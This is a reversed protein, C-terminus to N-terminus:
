AELRVLTRSLFVNLWGRTTFAHASTEMYPPHLGGINKCIGTPQVWGVPGPLIREGSPSTVSSSEVSTSVNSTPRLADRDDRRPSHRLRRPGAPIRDTVGQVLM